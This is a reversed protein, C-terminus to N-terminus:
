LLCEFIFNRFQLNLYLTHFPYFLPSVGREKCPLTKRARIQYLKNGSLPNDLDPRNKPKKLRAM